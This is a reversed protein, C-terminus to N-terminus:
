ECEHVHSMPKDNPHAASFCRAPFCQCVCPFFIRPVTEPIRAVPLTEVRASLIGSVQWELCAVTEAVLEPVSAVRPM